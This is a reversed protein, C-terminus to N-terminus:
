EERVMSFGHKIGSLCEREIHKESGALSAIAIGVENALDCVEIDKKPLDNLATMLKTIFMEVDVRNSLAGQERLYADLVTPDALAAAKVEAFSIGKVKNNM